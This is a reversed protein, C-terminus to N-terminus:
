SLNREAWTGQLGELHSKLTYKIIKKVAEVQGYSQPHYPTSFYKRIKLGDYFPRFKKNDFQKKNDTIISHSIGFQCIISKWIFKTMKSETIKALLDAEAWKPFYNVGVIVYKVGRKKTPFSGILDIGWKVFPWPNIVSALKEPPNRILPVLRQYKEYKKAFLITDKKLELWYYGQRFVKYAM